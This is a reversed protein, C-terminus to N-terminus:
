KFQISELSNTYDLMNDSGMSNERIVKQNRWAIELSEDSPFGDPIIKLCLVDMDIRKVNLKFAMYQLYNAMMVVMAPNNCSSSIFM